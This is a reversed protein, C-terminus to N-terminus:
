VKFQQASENLTQAVSQLKVASKSVGDVIQVVEATSASTKETSAANEESIATLDQVADVISKRSEDLEKAKDSIKGVGTITDAIGSKIQEFITSTKVVNENQETMVKRVQDMIEVSKSSDELLSQIIGDIQVASQNSQEALKQIQSAVVAFGRGNEGARAAEISANLSLLNTEDAISRILTTAEQINQASTNTRNTQEYIVDISKGASENTARLNEIIGSAESGRDNMQDATNLLESVKSTTEEIMNGMKVINETANQTEAAQSTAGEAIEQVAKEIQEVNSTTEEASNSLDEATESLKEAHGKIETIVTALKQQMGKIAMSMLGFEDSRKSLENLEPTEKFDLDGIKKIVSTMQGVPKILYTVILVSAVACVIILLVAVIVSRTTVARISGLVDSEDASIVLIASNDSTLAYAAYKTKGKFDYSVVAPQVTKGAQLDAVVGKVVANEVPQGIKDATPHYLMVGDKAVLYAYSSDYGKMGAESLVGSLLTPDKLIGTGKTEILKDILETYANAQSMIYNQAVTKMSKTVTPIIMLIFFFVAFVIGAINMLVIPTRISKRSKAKTVEAGAQKNEVVTEAM